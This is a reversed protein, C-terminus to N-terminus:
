RIKWVMGNTKRGCGDGPCRAKVNDFYVTDGSEAAAQLTKAAANFTYGTVQATLIEGNGKSLTMEFAQIECYADFDLREVIDIHEIIRFRALTILGSSEMGCGLGLVVVPDPIRKVRFILADETQTKKNKVFIIAEGPASVRAIYHGKGNKTITIGAGKGRVDLSDDPTDFAAITLPNDVGIYLTNQRDLSVATQALATKACLLLFFLLKKM